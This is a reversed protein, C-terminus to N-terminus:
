GARLAALIGGISASRRSYDACDSEFAFSESRKKSAPRKIDARFGKSIKGRAIIESNAGEAKQRTLILEHGSIRAIGFADLLNACWIKGQKTPMLFFPPFDIKENQESFTLSAKFGTGPACPPLRRLNVVALIGRDGAPFFLVRGCAMPFDATGKIYAVAYPRHGTFLKAFDANEHRFTYM